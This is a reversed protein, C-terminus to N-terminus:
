AEVRNDYVPVSGAVYDPEAWVRGNYSIRAIFGGDEDVINPCRMKSAGFGSKDRAICFMRSAEEFSSVQFLKRGIQLFMTKAPTM